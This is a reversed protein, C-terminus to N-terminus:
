FPIYGELTSYSDGFIMVNGLNKMVYKGKSIELMKNLTNVLGENEKTGFHVHTFRKKCVDEM